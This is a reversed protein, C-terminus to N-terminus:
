ISWLWDGKMGLIGNSVLGSIASMARTKRHKADTPMRESVISVAEDYNICPTGTPTGEKGTHPSKRLPEGLADRAIKQNAGLLRKQKRAVHASEDPVIVCSTIEEGDDDKGLPM